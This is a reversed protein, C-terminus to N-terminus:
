QFNGVWRGRLYAAMDRRDRLDQFFELWSGGGNKFLTNEVISLHRKGKKAVPKYFLSFGMVNPLPRFAGRIQIEEPTLNEHLDFDKIRFLQTHVTPNKEGPTIRTEEYCYTSTNVQVLKRILARKPDAPDVGAYLTRHSIFDNPGYGGLVRYNKFATSNGTQNFM